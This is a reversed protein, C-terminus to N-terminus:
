DGTQNIKKKQLYWAAGFILMVIYPTAMLYLIVSNLGAGVSGGSELNSEVVLKNILTWSVHILHPFLHMSFGLFAHHLYFHDM